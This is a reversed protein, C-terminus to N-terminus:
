RFVVDRDYHTDDLRKDVFALEEHGWDSLFFQWANGTQLLHVPLRTVRAAELIKM